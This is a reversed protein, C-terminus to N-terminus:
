STKTYQLTIYCKTFDSRDSGCQIAIDTDSIMIRIQTAINDVNVFPIQIRNLGTTRQATGNILVVYDLNSIGHSISKATSNPLAGFNITKEYLTEGFWTGIIKENGDYHVMPVGDTGWTGLGPIDTTKTYRITVYAFRNPYSSDGIITSYVYINTSNISKVYAYYPGKQIGPSFSGNDTNINCDIYTVIGLNAIGHAITFTQAGQTASVFSVIFSKLYLPKGDTWVGIEREELSYIVPAFKEGEVIGTDKICYLIGDSYKSDPLADYQAQTLERIGSAGYLRGNLLMEGM